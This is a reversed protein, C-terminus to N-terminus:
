PRGGEARWESSRGARHEALAADAAAGLRRDYVHEADAGDRMAVDLRVERSLRRLEVSGGPEGDAARALLRESVAAWEAWFDRLDTLAPDDPPISGRLEALRLADDQQGVAEHTRLMIDILNHLAPGSGRLADAGRAVGRVVERSVAVTEDLAVM